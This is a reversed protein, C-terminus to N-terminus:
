ESSAGPRTTQSWPREGPCHRERWHICAQAQLTREEPPTDTFRGWCSTLHWNALIRPSHAGEGNCGERSRGRHELGRPGWIQRSSVNPPTLGAAWGWRCDTEWRGSQIDPARGWPHTLSPAWEHEFRSSVDGPGIGM